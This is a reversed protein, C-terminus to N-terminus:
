NSRRDQETGFRTRRQHWGPGTYEDVGNPVTLGYNCYTATTDRGEDCM